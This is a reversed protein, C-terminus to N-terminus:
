TAILLNISVVPASDFYIISDASLVKDLLVSKFVNSSSIKLIDSKNESNNTITLEKLERQKEKELVEM